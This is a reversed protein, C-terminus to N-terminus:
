QTVVHQQPNMYLFKDENKDQHNKDTLLPSITPNDRLSNTRVTFVGWQIERTASNAKSHPRTM